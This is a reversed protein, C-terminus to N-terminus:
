PKRSEQELLTHTLESLQSHLQQLEQKQAQLDQQLQKRSSICQKLKGSEKVQQQHRDLYARAITGWDDQPHAAIFAQLKTDDHQQELVEIAATLQTTEGTGAARVTSTAPKMAVPLCGTLLLCAFLIWRM